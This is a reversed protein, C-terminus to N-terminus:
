HQSGLGDCWLTVLRLPRMADLGAVDTGSCLEDVALKRDEFLYSAPQKGKKATSGRRFSLRDQRDEESLRHM